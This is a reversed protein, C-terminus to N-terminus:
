SPVGLERLVNACGLELWKDAEAQDPVWLSGLMGGTNASAGKWIGERRPVVVICDDWLLVNHPCIEEDESLGLVERCQSLMATYVSLMKSTEVKAFGEVFRLLFYKFPVTGKGEGKAGDVLAKFAYPPGRLGQLHKHVRSCGGKEGCNFIVYWGTWKVLVELVAAFDAGDLPEHQRRYSDTTLILLQPRDVCFLNLALDHSANHNLQCLILREDPCFMDSGPGWRRTHNYNPNAAGPQHPKTLLAPCIRIEIPYGEDTLQHKTHPGYVIVNETVLQDFLNVVDQECIKDM